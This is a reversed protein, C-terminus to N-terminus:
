AWDLRRQRVPLLSAEDPLDGLLTLLLEPDVQALNTAPPEAQVLLEVYAVLAPDIVPAVPVSPEDGGCGLTSSGLALAALLAAGRWARRASVMAERVNM